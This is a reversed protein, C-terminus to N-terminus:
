SALHFYARAKGQLKLMLFFLIYSCIVVALFKKADAAPWLYLTVLIHGVLATFLAFRTGRFIAIALSLATVAVLLHLTFSLTIIFGVGRSKGFANLISATVQQLLMWDIAALMLILIASILINKSMKM